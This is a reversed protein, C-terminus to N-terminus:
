CVKRQYLIYNREMKTNHGINQLSLIWIKLILNKFAEIQFFQYSYFVHRLSPLCEVSFFNFDGASVKPNQLWAEIRQSALVRVDPYGCVSVLFRLLNRSAADIMSRKTLQDKVVDLIYYQIATEVNPSSYRFLYKSLLLSYWYSGVTATNSYRSLFIIINIVLTEQVCMYPNM